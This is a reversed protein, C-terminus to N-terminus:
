PKGNGVFNLDFTEYNMIELPYMYIHLRSHPDINGVIVFFYVKILIRLLWFTPFVLKMM